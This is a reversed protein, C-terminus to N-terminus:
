NVLTKCTDIAKQRNDNKFQFNMIEDKKSKLQTEHSEELNAIKKLEAENLRM